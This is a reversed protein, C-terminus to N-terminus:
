CPRESAPPGPSRPARRTAASRARAIVQGDAPRRAAALGRQQVHEAADVRRGDPVSSNSPRSTACATRRRASGAAAARLDAEHELAEEQQRHQGRGLVDLQRLRFGADGVRSRRAACARVARTRPVRRVRRGDATAARPRRSAARPWRARAPWGAAAAAPRRAWRRARGRWRRDSRPAARGRAVGVARRDHDDRVVRRQGLARPRTSVIRSPRTSLSTSATIPRSASDSASRAGPACRPAPRRAKADPTATIACGARRRRPRARAPATAPAPRRPRRASEGPGRPAPASSSRPVSCASASAARTRAAAEGRVRASRYRTRSSALAARTSPRPPM